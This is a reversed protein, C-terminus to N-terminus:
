LCRRSGRQDDHGGRRFIRPTGRATMFQIRAENLFAVMSDNGLHDGRNIQSLMIPLEVQYQFKEPVEITVRAM